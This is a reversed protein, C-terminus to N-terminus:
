AAAAEGVQVPHAHDESAGYLAGGPCEECPVERRPNTIGVLSAVGGLIVLAGGIGLGLRFASTSSDALAKRVRTREPGRLRDAPSVALSRAKAEKVAARAAPSLPRSGLESDVRASFASAVAAGLVAIALLGAIRAIANNVGSAVGSHQEDVAGLVTATLPAVTASLGLGFLIVGPLVQSFYDASEDVRMFLLLGIGGVIPGVGMFLRPGIRDALAGMRRSLTFLLLTMPLFAAGAELPSYGAVQQLYLGLFFMAGGLGAYLTLTAINGIAFNRSRFLDLPMMPDPTRREHWVFVALAAIGGILGGYVLPNGWGYSPQEILAVIVGGLGLGCLIGGLFDVRAGHRASHMKPVGRAILFLTIITFPVNIVFIWRWSAVDLLAGGGLPGVVTSIGTWATWTGIAGGREAPPFTAMIIALTSPVLLAGAVGQLARFAILFGVSPAVACALSTIGFGAVGLAFVTRREFIDDLSGGVLLLSSLTLLYAEVIWQQAALGAGLDRQIAPLAVNMVTGDLFVIGSGLICAVLTLRRSPATPAALTATAM